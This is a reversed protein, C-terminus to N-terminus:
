DTGAEAFVVIIPRNQLPSMAQWCDPVAMVFKPLKAKIKAKGAFSGNICSAQRPSAPKPLHPAALSPNDAIGGDALTSGTGASTVAKELNERHLSNKGRHNTQKTKRAESCRLCRDRHDFVHLALHGADFEHVIDRGSFDDLEPRSARDHEAVHFGAPALGNGPDSGYDHARFLAHDM